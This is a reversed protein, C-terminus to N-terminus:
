QNMPPGLLSFAGFVPKEVHLDKIPDAAVNKSFSAFKDKWIEAKWWQM